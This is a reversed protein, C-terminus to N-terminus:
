RDMEENVARVALGLADSAARFRRWAARYADPTTTAAMADRAAVWERHAHYRANCAEQYTPPVAGAFLDVAIM